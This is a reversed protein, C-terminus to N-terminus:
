NGKFSDERRPADAAHWVPLRKTLIVANGLLILAVGAFDLATWRFGEFWTSLALAILPFLVTTYAARDPGISGVLTLYSWFGVVTAFVALFLLSLVYAPAPDFVFAQGRAITLAAIFCTGYLMSYANGQFVSLGRRRQNWASTLMGASAFCTGTLALGLGLTGQRTLDFAAIEPWFVIAIGGIGLVAGFLVRRQVPTRFVIAGGIINLIVLTSFAVAVLGTTLYQSGLYIFFYNTSFLCVGQLAMFGHDAASFRMRRRAALCLAFMLATAIAFRYVISVEPAVVGLQFKIALWSTGWLVVTLAYLSLDRASMTREEQRPADRRSFL